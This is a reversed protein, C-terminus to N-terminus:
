VLTSFSHPPIAGDSVSFLSESESDTHREETQQPDVGTSADGAEPPPNTASAVFAEDRPDPNTTARGAGAGRIRSTVQSSAPAAGANALRRSTNKRNSLNSM